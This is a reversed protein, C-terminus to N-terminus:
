CISYTSAVGGDDTASVIADGYCDSTRITVSTRDGGREAVVRFAEIGDPDAQGTNYVTREGPAVTVTADYVTENTAERVVTVHMTANGGLRNVVVIDHDPDPQPERHATGVDDSDTPRGDRPTPTGDVVRTPTVSPTPSPSPTASDTDTPTSGTPGSDTTPSAPTAPGTGVCGGLLVAAVLLLAISRPM